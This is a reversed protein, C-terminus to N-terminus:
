HGTFATNFNKQLALRSKTTLQADDAFLIFGSNEASENKPEIREALVGVFINFLTPSMPSGQLIGRTIEALSDFINRKIFHVIM